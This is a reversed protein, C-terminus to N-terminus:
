PSRRRKVLLTALGALLLALTQPEPVTAVDDPRVALAFIASSKLYGHGQFGTKAEFLWAGSVDPAYALGSWYIDSQLNKFTATDSLGWGAQAVCSSSPAADNPGCIGKNGLGVCDLHGM